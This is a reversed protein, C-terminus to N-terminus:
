KVMTPNFNISMLLITGPIKNMIKLAAFCKSFM